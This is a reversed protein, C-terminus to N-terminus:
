GLALCTSKRTLWTLGSSTRRRTSSAAHTATLSPPYVLVSVTEIGGLSLAAHRRFGAMLNDLEQDTVLLLQPPGNKLISQHLERISDDVVIQRSNKGPKIRGFPWMAPCPTPIAPM